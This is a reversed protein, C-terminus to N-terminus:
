MKGERVNFFLHQQVIGAYEGFNTKSYERITKLATNTEFYLKEMIRKVWVDVPFVEYRQLAFLLICDAVKPGIGQYEILKNYASVTDMNSLVSLDENKLSEVNHLIYRARFGVGCSLLDDMTLKALSKVDPFTYYINGEFEQPKGCKKSILDVSKSIRSINNNASIIYSIYTEFLPQRLIRIGSSFEIAKRVNADIKSITNELSTYDIDLAFYQKVVEELNDENNSWVYLTNGIQKVRLVRDQIVGIYENEGVERWRFCQGCELTYKLNFTEVTIKLNPEM